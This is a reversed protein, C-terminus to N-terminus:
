FATIEHVMTCPTGKEPPCAGWFSGLWVPWHLDVLQHGKSLLRARVQSPPIWRGKGVPFPFGRTGVFVGRAFIGKTCRILKLTEELGEACLHDSTWDRCGCNNHAEGQYGQPRYAWGLSGEPWLRISLPFEIGQILPERADLPPSCGITMRPRGLM